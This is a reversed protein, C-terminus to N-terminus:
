ISAYSDILEILKPSIIDLHMVWYCELLRVEFLKNSIVYLFFIILISDEQGVLSCVIRHVSIRGGVDRFVRTKIEAMGGKISHDNVCQDRHMITHLDEFRLCNRHLTLRSNSKFVISLVIIHRVTKILVQVLPSM